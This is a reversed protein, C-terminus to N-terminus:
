YYSKPGVKGVVAARAETRKLLERKAPTRNVGKNRCAEVEGETTLIGFEEKRCQMAALFETLKYRQLKPV